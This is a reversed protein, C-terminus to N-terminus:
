RPEGYEFRCPIHEFKELRKKLRSIENNKIKLEDEFDEYMKDINQHITEFTGDYDDIILQKADEKTMKYRM